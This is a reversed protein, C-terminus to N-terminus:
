SGQDGQDEPGENGGGQGGSSQAWESSWVSVDEDVVGSKKERDLRLKRKKVKGPKARRRGIM